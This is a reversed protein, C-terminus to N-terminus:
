VENPKNPTEQYEIIKHSLTYYKGFFWDSLHSSYTYGITHYNILLNTKTSCFKTCLYM